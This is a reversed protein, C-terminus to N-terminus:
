FGLKQGIITIKMEIRELRERLESDSMKEFPLFKALDLPVQDRDIVAVLKKEMEIELKHQHCLRVTVKDETDSIVSGYCVGHTMVCPNHPLFYVVDGKRM